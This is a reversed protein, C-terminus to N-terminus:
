TRWADQNKEMWGILEEAEAPGRGPATLLDAALQTLAVADLGRVTRYRSVVAPNIPELLLTNAGRDVKTLGVGRALAPLNSTYVLALRAPTPSLQGPLALTGTVTFPVDTAQLSAVLSGLGRPELFGSADNSESVAYDQTWRRLVGQWDMDLVSGTGSREVLGEDTLLRVVRSLTPAPVGAKSALSRLGIPPRFDLLARVAGVAGRGKLSQLRSAVPSPNRDSGKTEVFLAPRSCQIWLNGTSDGYGIGLRKLRDRGTPSLFGTVVMGVANLGSDGLRDVYAKLREAAAVADRTTAASKAEVILTMAEGDPSSVDLVLDPKKERGLRPETATVVTWTRPLRDMLMTVVRDVLESRTSPSLTNM